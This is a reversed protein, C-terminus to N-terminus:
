ITTSTAYYHRHPNIQVVWKRQAGAASAYSDGEVPHLRVVRLLLTDTTAATSSDAELISRDTTDSGTFGIVSVNNGINTAAMHTTDSDDQITFLQHPSDYVLIKQSASSSAVTNAAVGVILADTTANALTVTGASGMKVLDGAWIKQTALTDYDQARIITDYPIMGFPNDSAKRLYPM